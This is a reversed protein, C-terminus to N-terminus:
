QDNRTMLKAPWKALSRSTRYTLLGVYIFDKSCKSLIKKEKFNNFIQYIKFKSIELYLRSINLNRFKLILIEFDRVNKLAAFRMTHTFNQACGGLYPYWFTQWRVFTRRTYTYSEYTAKVLVLFDLIKM